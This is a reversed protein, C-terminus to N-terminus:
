LRENNTIYSLYKPFASRQQEKKLENIRSELDSKRHLKKDLEEKKTEGIIEKKVKEKEAELLKEKEENPVVYYDIEQPYNELQQCGTKSKFFATLPRNKERIASIEKINQDERKRLQKVNKM